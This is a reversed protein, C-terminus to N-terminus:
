AEPCVKPARPTHVWYIRQAQPDKSTAVSLTGADVLLLWYILLYAIDYKYVYINDTNRLYVSKSTNSGMSVSLVGLEEILCGARDM